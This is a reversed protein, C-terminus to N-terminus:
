ADPRAYPLTALTYKIGGGYIYVVIYVLTGVSSCMGKVIGIYHYLTGYTFCYIISIYPALSNPGSPSYAGGSGVCDM